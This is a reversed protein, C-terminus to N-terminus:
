YTKYQLFMSYCIKNFLMNIYKRICYIHYLIFVLYSYFNNDFDSTINYLLSNAYLDLTILYLLM